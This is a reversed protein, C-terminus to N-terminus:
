ISSHPKMYEKNLVARIERLMELNVVIEVATKMDITVKNDKEAAKGIDISLTEILKGIKEKENMNEWRETTKNEM